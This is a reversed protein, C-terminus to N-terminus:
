NRRHNTRGIRYMGPVTGEQDLGTLFEDLEDAVIVFHKGSDQTSNLVLVRKLLRSPDLCDVGGCQTSRVALQGAMSAPHPVCYGHAAGPRLVLPSTRHM